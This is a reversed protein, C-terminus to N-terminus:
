GANVEQGQQRELIKVGNCSIIIRRLKEYKCLTKLFFFGLIIM